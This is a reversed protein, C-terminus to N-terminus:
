AVFFLTASALSASLSASNFQFEAFAAESLATLSSLSIWAKNSLKVVVAVPSDLTLFDL